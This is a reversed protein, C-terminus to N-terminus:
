APDVRWVTVDTVRQGTGLLADLTRRLAAANLQDRDALVFCSAHWYAIDARARARDDATIVPVTGTREVTNLIQSTPRSYIGVSARGGAAYPGIFFGEPIAFAANAAAPWRMKDPDAPNPVPVPVLTGGPRVCSRWHGETFFRPVPARPVTPLPPPVLPVLALAVISPVAIRVPRRGDRLAQDLANALVFAIVPIMALAFRTPLAGDVVPLGAILRYPGSHTTPMGGVVLRPGLALAGMVLGATTSALVAPRRWLWATAVVLVLLLPGGFFANYEAPGSVLRATDPSGAWSLPSFSWFGALDATFFAPSFPGNPVHQPGTFQVRLPYGLAVVATGAAMTLGIATPGLAPRIRRPAVLGYVVSFLTLTVATLFLVEEGLFLQVAVVAGLLVGTGLVRRVWNAAPLDAPTRALRIVCWVILPVLWQSTMHPHANSQAIMGPAYATFAAGVAAGARHLRLTRAFLLYWAIGTAALNGTVAVAFSVPAGFALTVPTLLVGLVLMSANSLLNVGDPANLLHTVLNLDGTWFRTGLALLWEVLAQDDPNLALARAVPHALLGHLLIVAAATLGACVALDVVLRRRRAPDAVEADRPGARRDGPATLRGAGGAPDPLDAQDATPSVSTVRL